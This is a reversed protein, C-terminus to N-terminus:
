KWPPVRQTTMVEHTASLESSYRFDTASLKEGFEKVMNIVMDDSVCLSRTGVHYLLTYITTEMSVHKVSKARLVGSCHKM